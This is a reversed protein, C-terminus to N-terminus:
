IRRLVKRWGTSETVAWSHYHRKGREYFIARIWPYGWEDIEYVRAPWTRLIMKKMFRRSMAHICYGPQSWEEPTSIFRVLDGVRLDKPNPM